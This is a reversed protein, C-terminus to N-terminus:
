DESGVERIPDPPAPSQELGESQIDSLAESDTIPPPINGESESPPPSIGESDSPSSPIEESEGPSQSPPLEESVHPSPSTDVVSVLDSYRLNGECAPYESMEWYRYNRMQTDSLLFSTERGRANFESIDVHYFDDDIKIINWYSASSSIDNSLGSVSICEIGSLRCMIKFAAAIGKDTAKGEVLAGYASNCYNTEDSLEVNSYLYNAIKLALRADSTDSLGVLAQRAVENIEKTLAQVTNISVPYTISVEYIRNAGTQPYSTVSVAPEFALDLSGQLYEEEFFSTIYEPDVATSFIRVTFLDEFESLKDSLLTKLETLGGVSIVDNIEKQTRTYSISIEATYYSIIRSLEYNIDSVAYAGMPTEDQIEYCVSALDTNVSGRYNSFQFVAEEERNDIMNLIAQYLASYNKIDLGSAIVSNAGEDFEESYYYESRYISSCACLFCVALVLILLSLKKAM